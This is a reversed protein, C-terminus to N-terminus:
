RGCAPKPRDLYEWTDPGVQGDAKIGSCAQVTKVAAETDSGFNGDVKLSQGYNYNLLCQIQKVKSGVM